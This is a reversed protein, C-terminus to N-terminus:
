AGVRRRFFVTLDAGSVQEAVARLSATTVDARSEVLVRVADELGRQDETHARIEQDLAVLVTVARATVAGSSDSVELSAAERGREEMRGLAKAYRKRSLTRSRVLAEMAFYEALGEIIWDGGKGSTLGLSAHVLEHLVPSTGDETILPRSSHIFASRPGSLGGRWMPDAAGVVLLRGPVEPLLGSLTPLTWRLLALIDLRHLRHGLPGAVAVRTGAITERLVGLRGAAIWGKPRVFHRRPDELEFARDAGRRYPAVVSWRDPVRVQLRARSSAGAASRTKAPPVLDDGRFIAWSEACRADYSRDDRLHDIRFVYRLRRTGAGPEWRVVDGDVEVTGDGSFDRHREPDIHWEVRRLLGQPDDVRVTVRAARETPVIRAQYLVQYVREEQALAAHVLALAGVTAAVAAAVPLLRRVSPRQVARTGM